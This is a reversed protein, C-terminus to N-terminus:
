GAKAESVGLLDALEAHSAVVHDAEPLQDTDDHRARIRVSTM